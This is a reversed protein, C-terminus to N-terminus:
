WIGMFVSRCHSKDTHGVYKATVDDKDNHARTHTHTHGHACALLNMRSHAGTAVEKTHLEDKALGLSKLRLM